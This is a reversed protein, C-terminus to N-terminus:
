SGTPVTRPPVFPSRRKPDRMFAFAAICAVALAAAAAPQHMFTLLRGVGPVVVWARGVIDTRRPMWPDVSHNNDGRLLYGGAPDGGAIRHVVVHGAGIEGAPVRYAVIDGTAYADMARVLVLDGTHYTPEMSSGRIVLYTVSGGLSEPRLMLAWLGVLLLVM